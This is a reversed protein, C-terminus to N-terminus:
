KKKPIDVTKREFVRKNTLKLSMEFKKPAKGSPDRSIHHRDYSLQPLLFCLITEPPLSLQIKPLLCQLQRIHYLRGGSFLSFCNANKKGLFFLVNKARAKDFIKPFHKEKSKQLFNVSKTKNERGNKKWSKKQMKRKHTKSYKQLPAKVLFFCNFDMLHLFEIKQFYKRILHM